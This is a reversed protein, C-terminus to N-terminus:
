KGKLKKINLYKEYISIGVLLLGAVGGAIRLWGALTEINPVVIATCVGLIGKLTCLTM